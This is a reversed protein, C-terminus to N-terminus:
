YKVKIGKVINDKKVIDMKEILSDLYAEYNKSMLSNKANEQVTAYDAHTEDIALRKIIHWGYDSEVLEPNVEGAAVAFSGKTFPAVMQSQGDLTHGTETILYGDPTSEMGPDEGYTSILTAFNEGALAKALVEEAKKKAEEAYGETEPVTGDESAAPTNSVLVHQVLAYATNIEAAIADDAPVFMEPDDTTLKTYYKDALYTKEMVDAYTDASVKYMKLMEDMGETNRAASREEDTLSIGAEKAKVVAVEIRIVQQMAKDKIYEAANKDEVTGNKLFEKAADEDAIGQESLVQLKAMEVYFKYEAETIESGNVTAITRSVKLGNISALGVAIACILAIAVIWKIASKLGKLM